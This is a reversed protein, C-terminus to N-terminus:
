HPALCQRWNNCARGCEQNNLATAQLTCDAELAQCAKLTFSHCQSGVGARCNLVAATCVELWCIVAAASCACLISSNGKSAPTNDGSAGAAVGGPASGKPVVLNAVSLLPYSYILRSSHQFWPCSLGAQPPRHHQVRQTGGPCSAAAVLQLHAEVALQVHGQMLSPQLTCLMLSPWLNATFPVHM